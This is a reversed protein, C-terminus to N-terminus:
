KTNHAGYAVQGIHGCHVSLDVYSQHGALGARIGFVQDEGQQSRSNKINETKTEALQVQVDELLKEVQTLDLKGAKVHQYALSVQESLSTIKNVAADNQNSFYHWPETPHQPALNPFTKRIDLLVERTHWLAGTAVWRVPKLEDIPGQHVRANEAVSEPTNLMAEYFMARGKSNRGFYTGGVITKGHSRLANIIHKGAYKDPFNFSTFHNFWSANGWPFIMDDDAWFCEPVGSDVFQDALVNRAHQIFADNHRMLAGMKDRELLGLISFHTVPHIAKYAPLLIVVKKGEWSAGQPAASASPEPSEFVREIAQLSPTKSGNRWQQVLLKSVEFFEAAKDDGLEVVKLKVLNRLYSM